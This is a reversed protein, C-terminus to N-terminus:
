LLYKKRDTNRNRDKHKKGSLLSCNFGVYHNNWHRLFLQFPLMLFQVRENLWTPKKLIWNTLSLNASKLVPPFWLEILAPNPFIEIRPLFFFVSGFHLFVYRFTHIYRSTLCTPWLAQEGMDHYPAKTYLVRLGMFYVFIYFFAITFKSPITM